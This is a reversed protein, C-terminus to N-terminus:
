EESVNEEWVPLVYTKKIMNRAKLMEDIKTQISDTLNIQHNKYDLWNMIHMKDYYVDHKWLTPNDWFQLAYQCTENAGELWDNKIDDPITCLKSYGDSLGNPRWVYRSCENTLYKQTLGNDGWDTTINNATFYGEPFSCDVTIKKQGRYPKLVLEGNKWAYGNGVTFFLNGLVKVRSKAYDVDRYLLPYTKISKAITRNLRM